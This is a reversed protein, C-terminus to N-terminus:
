GQSTDDIVSMLSAVIQLKSIVRLDDNVITIHRYYLGCLKKLKKESKKNFVAVPNSGSIKPDTSWREVETVCM